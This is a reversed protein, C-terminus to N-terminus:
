LCPVLPVSLNLLRGLDPLQRTTPGRVRAELDMSDAMM